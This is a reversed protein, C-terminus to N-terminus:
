TESGASSHSGVWRQTRTRLTVSLEVVSLVSISVDSGIEWMEDVARERQASKSAITMIVEGPM